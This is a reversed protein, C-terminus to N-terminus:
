DIKSHQPVPLLAQVKGYIARYTAYDSDFRMLHTTRRSAINKPSHYKSMWVVSKTLRILAEKEGPTVAVGAQRCLELLDHGGEQPTMGRMKDELNAPSLQIVAAKVLAELSSGFLLM